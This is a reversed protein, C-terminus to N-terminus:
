EEAKPEDKSEGEAEKETEEKPAEEKKEEEEKKPEEKPAEEEKKPEEKKEEQKAEKKEEEPKAELKVDETVVEKTAEEKAPEKEEPEAPKPPAYHCQVLIKGGTMNKVYQPIADGLEEFTCTRAYDTKAGGELLLKPLKRTLNFKSLLNKNGLYETLWFGTITKKNFILERIECNPNQLGLGGYVYATGGPVMAKILHATLDGGVADFAMKCQLKTACEILDAPFSEATSNFVHTAGAKRCAEVQEDRRVVCIVHIREQNAMRILMQGLASAAATHIMSTLKQGKAIELFAAATLPNVLPSACQKLDATAPLEVVSMSGATTYEAWCGDPSFFAVKKGVLRAGMTMGSFGGGHSCVTGCGEFGAGCPPELKRGYTGALYSLDSPNVTSWEVKILLEGPKPMPVDVEQVVLNEKLMAPDPCAKLLKIAKM